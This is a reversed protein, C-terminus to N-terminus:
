AQGRTLSRFADAYARATAGIGLQAEAHARLAAGVADGARSFGQQHQRTRPSLFGRVTEAWFRPDEGSLIACNPVRGIIEGAGTGSRAIVPVGCALAEAVVLGFPEERAPHLLVDAAHFVPLVPDVVGLFHVRGRLQLEESLARLAPEEPGAGAILLHVNEGPLEAAVRLSHSPAKRRTLVGITALVPADEPLNFRQRAARMEEANAPHFADLDVGNPSCLLHSERIGTKLLAAHDHNSIAAIRFRENPITRRYWWRVLPRWLAGKEGWGHLAHETVVMPLDLRAAVARAVVDARLLHAHLVHVSQGRCFEALDRRAAGINKWGYSKRHIAGGTASAADCIAGRLPGDEALSFVSVRLGGIRRWERLLGLVLRGPGDAEFGRLVLAVSLPTTGSTM